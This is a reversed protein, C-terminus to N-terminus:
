RPLCIRYVRMPQDAAAPDKFSGVGSADTSSTGILVWGGSDLSDRAQLQYARNPLGEFEIVTGTESLDMQRIWITESGLSPPSGLASNDGAPNSPVPPTAAPKAASAAGTSALALQKARLHRMVELYNPASFKRSFPEDVSGDPNLRALYTCPFDNVASFLGGILVRGDPQVAATLVWPTTKDTVQIRFNPDTSGDSNLRALGTFPLDNLTALCGALLLRGPAAEMLQLCFPARALEFRAEFGKDIQWGPKFRFLRGRSTAGPEAIAMIVKGDALRVGGRWLCLPVAEFTRQLARALLPEALQQQLSDNRPQFFVFDGSGPQPYTRGHLFVLGAPTLTATFDLDYEIPKAALFRGARDFQHVAPLPLNYSVGSVPPADNTSVARLVMEDSPGLAVSRLVDVASWVGPTNVGATELAFGRDPGGSPLLRVVPQGRLQTLIKGDSQLVLARHFGTSELAPKLECHFTHDVNGDPEFRFIGGPIRGFCGTRRDVFRLHLGYGDGVLIKGDPEVLISGVPMLDYVEDPGATLRADAAAHARPITQAQALLLLLATRAARSRFSRSFLSMASSFSSM